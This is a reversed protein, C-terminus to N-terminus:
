DRYLLVYFDLQTTLSNIYRHYSNISRSSYSLSSSSFAITKMSCKIVAEVCMCAHLCILSCLLVLPQAISEKLSSPM